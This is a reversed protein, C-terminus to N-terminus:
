HIFKFESDCTKLNASPIFTYNHEYIYTLATLHKVLYEVQIRM